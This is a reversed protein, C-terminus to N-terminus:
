KLDIPERNAQPQNLHVPLATQALKLAKLVKLQRHAIQHQHAVKLHRHAAV